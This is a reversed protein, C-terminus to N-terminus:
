RGFAMFYFRAPVTGGRVTEDVYVGPQIVTFAFVDNTAGRLRETAALLVVTRSNIGDHFFLM